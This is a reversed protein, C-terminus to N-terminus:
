KRTEQSLETLRLIDRESESKSLSEAIAFERSATSRDGAKKAIQGLLYHAERNKADITIAQGANRKAEEGYGKKWEARALEYLTDADQSNLRHAESLLRIAEDYKSEKGLLAGM